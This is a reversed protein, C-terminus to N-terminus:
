TIKYAVAYKGRAIRRLNGENELAKVVRFIYARSVEPFIARLAPITVDQRSLIADRILAAKPGAAGLVADVRQELEGYARLLVDLLYRIWPDPNHRRAHWGQSSERLAGYYAEKTEFILRELPVYKGVLYGEQLLLLHTLLRVMRGNGDDFPHISLFDLVFAAIIIVDPAVCSSRAQGLHKCLELMFQPTLAAAPPRFAVGILAGGETRTEIVNDRSKWHGATRDTTYRYLDRHMRLITEPTVDLLHPDHLDDIMSLLDRYGAIEEEPRTRPHASRGLILALRDPSAEIGEVANSAVTSQRIATERLVRLAEPKASLYSTQKGKHEALAAVRAVIDNPLARDRLAYEFTHM